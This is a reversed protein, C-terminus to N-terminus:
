AARRAATDADHYAAFGPDRPRWNWAVTEWHPRDLRACLLDLPWTTLTLAPQGPTIGLMAPTVIGTPIILRSIPGHRASLPRDWYAGSTRERQKCANCLGRTRDPTVRKGVRIYGGLTGCAVCPRATPTTTTEM